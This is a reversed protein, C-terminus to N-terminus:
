RQSHVRATGVVQHVLAAAALELMELILRLERGALRKDAIRETTETLAIYRIWGNYGRCLGVVVAGFQRQVHASPPPSDTEMAVITRILYEIQDPAV